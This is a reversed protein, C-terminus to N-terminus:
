FSPALHKVYGIVQSKSDYIFINICAVSEKRFSDLYESKQAHIAFYHTPMQLHQLSM